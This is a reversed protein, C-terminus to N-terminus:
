TAYETNNLQIGVITLNYVVSRNLQMWQGFFFIDGRRLQVDSGSHQSCFCSYYLQVCSCIVFFAVVYSSSLGHM